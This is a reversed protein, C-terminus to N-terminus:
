SVVSGVTSLWIMWSLSEPALTKKLMEMGFNAACAIRLAASMPQFGTCYRFLTEDETAEVRFGAPMSFLWPWIVAKHSMSGVSLCHFSFASIFAQRAQIVLYM